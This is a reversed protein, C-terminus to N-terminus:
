DDALIVEFAATNDRVIGMSMLFQGLRLMPAVYWYKREVLRNVKDREQKDTIPRVDGNFVEGGVRLSIAPRAKVNRVWNRNANASALYLRDADLMYWITVEYPRGSKRGYHTLRLTQRDGVRRLREFSKSAM